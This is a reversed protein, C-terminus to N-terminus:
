RRPRTGAVCGLCQRRPPAASWAVPRGAGDGQATASGMLLYGLLWPFAVVLREISDALYQRGVEAVSLLQTAAATLEMVALSAEVAALNGSTGLSVQNGVMSRGAISISSQTTAVKMRETAM